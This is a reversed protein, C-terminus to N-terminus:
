FGAVILVLRTCMEVEILVGELRKIMDMYSEGGPFRCQLPDARWQAFFEPHRREMEEWPPTDSHCEVDWWGAGFAGKDIPNLASTQDHRLTAYGVSAVARPMTSTIVHTPEEPKGVAEWFNRAREQVFAGLSMAFTRGADSLKSLRDGTRPGEPNEGGAGARVLWIPRAGIHIAMLYPLISKVVRGYCHNAMVKSSLDFLKIYTGEDDQVTEYVEEYKAIRLKLDALGQELTMHAFDPSNSVKGRMNMELVEADDCITEVFLVSYQRHHARVQELIRRRRELTSNTADLIAVVGGGDLFSLVDTLAASAANERAAFADANKTDFFNSRGSQEPAVADRRYRGVNFSRTKLGRWALFCEVRRSVFSKGRAPLGVM